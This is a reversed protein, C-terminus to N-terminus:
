EGVNASSGESSDGCVPPKEKLQVDEFRQGQMAETWTDPAAPKVADKQSRTHPSIDCLLRWRGAVTRRARRMQKEIASLSLGNQRHSLIAKDDVKSFPQSPWRTLGIARRKSQVAKRTRKLAAAVDALSAHNKHMRHLVDLDQDTWKNDRKVKRSMTERNDNNKFCVM